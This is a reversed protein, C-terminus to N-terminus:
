RELQMLAAALYEGRRLRDGIGAAQLAMEEYDGPTVARLADGLEELSNVAFGVGSRRVFEATASGSWVAVPLGATLYLSLKHPNNLALYRGYLGTCADVSDGDWVLGFAGTLQGPLEDPSKEGCWHVDDRAEGTWGSGYLRWTVGCRPLAYLYGSKDRRLNGAVCVELSLTRRVTPVDTLYDFLGLETLKEDPIGQGTLCTRMSANHCIIRDFAPLLKGDSWEAAKGGIGRLSDLDHVLAATKVGKWHLLRLGLRSMPAAKVPFYPYQVLLLDGRRLRLCMRLWDGTAQLALMAKGALGGSATARARVPLPIYGANEAIRQADRRAKNMAPVGGAESLVTLVFRRRFGGGRHALREFRQMLDEAATSLDYGARALCGTNDQRPRGEANRSMQQLKRAWHAPDAAPLFAVDGTVAVEQPVADSLLCPLGAAQAELAAIGLGEFRSPMAFVDLAQLVRPVDRRAGLFRVDEAIGLREAQAELSQRDPGDGCLVLRARPEVKRLCAFTELLFAQNKQYQLRGVHGVALCGELELEARMVRRAEADPRFAAADIANPIVAHPIDLAPCAWRASDESCAWLVNAYRSMRRRQLRHLLGQARGRLSRDMNKPNHSHAVRVPIGHKAALKLPTMDNFMCENDWLVDYEGAHAAFFARIERYFRIPSRSRRPVVYTRGIEARKEPYAADEFRTLFDVQVRQPDMRGCLNMLFSEIGGATSTMGVALVRVPKM